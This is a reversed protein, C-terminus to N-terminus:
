RLLPHPAQGMAIGPATAPIECSFDMTPPATHPALFSGLCPLLGQNQPFDPQKLLLELVGEAKSGPMESRILEEQSIM